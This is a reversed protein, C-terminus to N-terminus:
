GAMLNQTEVEINAAAKLSTVFRELVRQRREELATELLTDKEKEFDEMDVGQSEKFAFLYLADKQSYLKDPIPNGAFLPLGGPQIDDLSGVKPIRLNSRPFFGTEELPLSHEKALEALDKKEKLEALLADGKERAMEMAKKEKVQRTVDGRIAELAPLLPEKREKLQILYAAKPGEVVSSIEEPALGFSTTYFADVPGVDKIGENSKFFPPTKTSLEREKALAALSVGNLARARDTEAAKVAEERGREDGLSKRIKEEAEKLTETKEERVGELKLLHYGFSTKVPDSIEGPKLGFAVEELAPLLEGKTLFGVEGGRSATPDESYEKALEAFDKGGKAEELVNQAKARAEETTEPSANPPFRILIHRLKVARKQHFKTDRYLNYYEEVDKEGVQVKAAFHAHPYALYEVRVKAPEKLTEKNGDYYSQLEQASVEAKLVFDKIALRIFRLNIKENELRYRERVEAESVRVSDRMVDFLKQILLEDRREAEFQAPTMRQYRLFRLYLDKDFGKDNQFVTNAAISDSLELDTVRLGIRRAEQVLLRNQIMNDLLAMRLNLTDMAERPRNRYTQMLRLFRTELERSSITEGNVEAITGLTPDPQLSGAGFYLAFVAVLVGIMLLISWSRKRKRLFDLM